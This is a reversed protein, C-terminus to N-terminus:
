FLILSTTIPRYLRETHWMNKTSQKQLVVTLHTCRQVEYGSTKWLHLGQEATQWFHQIELLHKQLGKFISYRRGWIKICQFCWGLEPYINWRKVNTTPRCINTFIQSQWNQITAKRNSAKSQIISVWYLSLRYTSNKVTKDEEKGHCFICCPLHLTSM